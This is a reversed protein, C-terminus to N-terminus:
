LYFYAPEGPPEGEWVPEGKGTQILDIPSFGDFEVDKHRLWDSFHEPDTFASLREILAKVELFMREALPSMPAGREWGSVSRSTSGLIKAFEDLTLGFEERFSRIDTREAAVLGSKRRKPAADSPKDVLGSDNSKLKLGPEIAVVAEKMEQKAGARRKRKSSSATTPESESLSDVENSGLRDDPETQRPERSLTKTAM